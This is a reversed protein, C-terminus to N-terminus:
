VMVDSQTPNRIERQAQKEQTVFAQISSSTLIPHPRKHKKRETKDTLAHMSTANKARKYRVINMCKQVEICRVLKM